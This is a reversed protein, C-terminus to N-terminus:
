VREYQHYDLQIYTYPTRCQGPIHFHFSCFLLHDAVNNTQAVNNAGARSIALVSFVSYMRRYLALLLCLEDTSISFPIGGGCWCCFHYYEFAVVSLHFPCCCKCLSFCFLVLFVAVNLPGNTSQPCAGELTIFLLGAGTLTVLRETDKSSDVVVVVVVVSVCFYFLFNTSVSVCEVEDNSTTGRWHHYEM